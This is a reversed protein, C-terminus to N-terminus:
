PFERPQFGPKLFEESREISLLWDKNEETWREIARILKPNAWECKKPIDVAKATEIKVRFGSDKKEVHFHAPRHDSQGGSLSHPYM